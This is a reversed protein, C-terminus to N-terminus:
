RALVAQAERAMQLDERSEVVLVSPDAGFLGSLRATLWDRLEVSNEGIGGTLVLVDLGGLVAICGGLERLLRHRYVDLALGAFRHHRRSRAISM